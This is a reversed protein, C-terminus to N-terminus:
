ELESALLDRDVRQDGDGSPRWHGGLPARAPAPHELAREYAALLQPESHQWALEHRVRALGIAAMRGRRAPDDLLDDICRGLSDSDGASAYVAAEGATRRSETLAYSVVPRGLAMYEAVKIM